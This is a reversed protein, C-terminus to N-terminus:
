GKNLEKSLKKNVVYYNLGNHYIQYAYKGKGPNKKVLTEVFKNINSSLLPVVIVNKKSRIIFRPKHLFVFINNKHKITFKEEWDIFKGRYTLGKNSVKYKTQRKDYRTLLFIFLIEATIISGSQVSNILNNTVVPYFMLGLIISYFLISPLSTQVKKSFSNDDNDLLMYKRRAFFNYLPRIYWVLTLLVTFIIIMIEMFDGRVKHYWKKLYIPIFFCICGYRSKIFLM